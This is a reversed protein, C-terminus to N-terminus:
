RWPPSPLFLYLLFPLQLTCRGKTSIRAARDWSSDKLLDGLRDINFSNFSFLKFSIIYIVSLRLRDSVGLKELLITIFTMKRSLFSLEGAWWARGSMGRLNWSVFAPQGSLQGHAVGSWLCVQSVSFIFQTLLQRLPLKIFWIRALLWLFIDSREGEKEFEMFYLINELTLHETNEIAKLLLLSPPFAGQPHLYPLDTVCQEALFTSSRCLHTTRCHIPWASAERGSFSM